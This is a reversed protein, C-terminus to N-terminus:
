SHSLSTKLPHLTLFLFRALYVGLCVTTPARSFSVLNLANPIYIYLCGLYPFFFFFVFPLSVCLRHYYLENHKSSLFPAGISSNKQTFIGVSKLCFVCVSSSVKNMKSSSNKNKTFVGVSKVLFDGALHRHYYLVLILYFFLFFYIALPPFFFFFTDGHCDCLLPFSPFLSIWFASLDSGKGERKGEEKTIIM